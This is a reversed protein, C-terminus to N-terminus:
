FLVLPTCDHEVLSVLGNVQLVSILFIQKYGSVITINGIYDVYVNTLQWFNPMIQTDFAFDVVYM